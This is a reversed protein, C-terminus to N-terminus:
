EQKRATTPSSQYVHEYLQKLLDKDLVVENGRDFVRIEDKDERVFAYVENLRM